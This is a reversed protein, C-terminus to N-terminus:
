ERTLAETPPTLPAAVQARSELWAALQGPDLDSALLRGAADFAFLRPLYPTELRRALPGSAGRGDFLQPWQVDQRRLWSVLDRRSALDVNVGVFRVGRPELATALAGVGPLSRVCKGCWTAWVYVVTLSVDAGGLLLPRGYVDESPAVQRVADLTLGAPEPRADRGALVAGLAVITVMVIV